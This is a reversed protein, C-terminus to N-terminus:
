LTNIIDLYERENKPDLRAAEKLEAIADKADGVRAYAAALNYHVTADNPNTAIARRYAAIAEDTRNLHTLTNALNNQAEFYYPNIELATSYERSAPEIEGMNYLATGLNNHSYPSQPNLEISKRLIQAAKQYEGMKNYVEGFNNYSEAHRPNYSIAKLYAEQAKSLDGMQAYARGLNNYPNLMGRDELHSANYYPNNVLVTLAILAAAWKLISKRDKQWMRILNWIADAAFLIIIPMITIRFRAKVFFIIFSLGYTIAYAMIPWTQQKRINMLMGLLGLPAILAMSTITYKLITENVEINYNEIDPIEYANLYLMTKDFMLKLWGVPNQIVYETAKKALAGDFDVSQGSDVVYLAEGSSPFLENLPIFLGNAKPNNGIYLSYGFSSSSLAFSGTMINRATLPTLLLAAGLWMWVLTNRAKKKNPRIITLLTLAPLLILINPKGWASLGVLVGTALWYQRSSTSYAKMAAYVLLTNIFILIPETLVVATYFILPGYVAAIISAILGVKEDFFECGMAYLICCTAAGLIAQFLMVYLLSQGLTLKFAALFYVYLPGNIYTKTYLLGHKLLDDALTWYTQSDFMLVTHFPNNQAEAVYLLRTTLAILFVVTIVTTRHKTNQLM